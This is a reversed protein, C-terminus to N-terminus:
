THRLQYQQLFSKFGFQELRANSIAWHIPPSAALRWDGRGSGAVWRAKEKSVGLKTLNQYRNKPTKWHKWIIQRLRRRTWADLRRMHSQADALAFYNVWGIIVPNLQDRVQATSRGANRPTLHRIKRKIRDLSRKALRIGM